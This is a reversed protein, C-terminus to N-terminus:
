SQKSKKKTIVKKTVVNKTKNIKAKNSSKGLEAKIIKWRKLKSFPKCAIFKVVQGVESGTEDHVHYKRVRKFRKRYLRHVVIREVAVTATKEMKKSVVKGTFIKM